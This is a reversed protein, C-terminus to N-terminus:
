GGFILEKGPIFLAKIKGPNQTGSYSFNFQLGGPASSFITFRIGDLIFFSVASVLATQVTITGGLNTIDADASQWHVSALKSTQTKDAM